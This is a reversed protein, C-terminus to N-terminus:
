YMEPPPYRKVYHKEKLQAIWDDMMEDQVEKMLESEIEDYVDDLPQYHAPKHDILHLLYVKDGLPVPGSVEGADLGEAVKRLSENLNETEIWGRYGGEEAKTGDSYERAMEAFEAGGDIKELLSEARTTLDTGDGQEEEPELVILAIESKDPIGYQERNQEYRKRIAGPSVAVKGSFQKKRMISVVINERQKEKFLKFTIGSSQLDELLAARDGNFREGIIGQIHRNVAEDPLAVKEDEELREFEEIVLAQAVLEDLAEEYIEALKESSVDEGMQMARFLDLNDRQMEAKVEGVTVVRDDVAAAFGDMTAADGRLASCFFAFLLAFGVLYKSRM